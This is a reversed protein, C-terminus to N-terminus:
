PKCVSLMQDFFMDVTRQTDMWGRPIYIDNVMGFEQARRRLFDMYVNISHSHILANNHTLINEFADVPDMHVVVPRFDIDMHFRAMLSRLHANLFSTIYRIDAKQKQYFTIPTFSFFQICVIDDIDSRDCMHRLVELTNFMSSMNASMADRFSSSSQAQEIISPAFFVHGSQFQSSHKQIADVLTLGPLTDVTMIRVKKKLPTDIM